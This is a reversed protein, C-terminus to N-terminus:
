HHQKYDLRVDFPLTILCYYIPFTIPPLSRRRIQPVIGLDIWLHQPFGRFIETLDGPRSKFWSDGSHSAPTSGVQSCCKTM